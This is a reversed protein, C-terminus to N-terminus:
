RRWLTTGTLSANGAPVEFLYGAEGGGSSVAGVVRSNSLTPDSSFLGGRRGTVDLSGSASVSFPGVLAHSGQLSTTFSSSGFDLSLRGSDITGPSPVVTGVYHVQSAGLRLNVSGQKPLTFVQQDARRFLVFNANAVTGKYGQLFESAAATIDSPWGAHWRAWVLTSPSASDLAKAANNDQIGSKVQGPLISGSSASREVPDGPSGSVDKPWPSKEPSDSPDASHRARAQSEVPAIALAIPAVAENGLSTAVAVASSLVQPRDRDPRVLAVSNGQHRSLEVALETNCPGLGTPQCLGNFKSVVVAGSHVTVLSEQASSFVAFDTGRIGLAAVPTNLRFRDKAQEGATGTISRASGQELDFRVRSAKPNVPDFSYDSVKLRSGPRASVMAGDVFRIHVHGNFATAIVDGVSILSRLGLSKAQSSGASTVSAQGVIFTVQGVQTSAIALSSLAGTFFSAFIWRLPKMTEDQDQIPM